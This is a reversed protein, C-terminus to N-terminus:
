THYEWREYEAKEYEAKEHSLKQATWYMGWCAGGLFLVGGALEAGSSLTWIGYAMIILARIM